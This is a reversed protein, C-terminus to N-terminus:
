VTFSEGCGCTGSANPNQWRWGSGDLGDHWDLTIGDLLIASKPDLLIRLEGSEQIRDKEERDTEFSLAYMFGSCGGGQVALRLFLGERGDRAMLTKVQEAARETVDVM